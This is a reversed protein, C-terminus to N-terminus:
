HATTTTTVSGTGAAVSVSTALAGSYGVSNSAVSTTVGVRVPIAVSATAGIPRITPNIQVQPNLTIVTAAEAGCVAMLLLSLGILTKVFM